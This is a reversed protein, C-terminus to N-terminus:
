KMWWLKENHMYARVGSWPTSTSTNTYHLHVGKLGIAESYSNVRFSGSSSSAEVGYLLRWVNWTRGESM